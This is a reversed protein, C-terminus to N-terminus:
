LLSTMFIILSTILFLSYQITIANSVVLPSITTNNNIILETMAIAVGGENWVVCWYPGKDSALVNEFVLIGNGNQWVRTGSLPVRRGTMMWIIHINTNHFPIHVTCTINLTAGEPM